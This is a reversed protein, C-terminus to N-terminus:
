VVDDITGNLNMARKAVRFIRRQFHKIAICAGRSNVVARIFNVPLHYRLAYEFSEGPLIPELGPRSLVPVAPRGGAKRQIGSLRDSLNLRPKLSRAAQPPRSARPGLSSTSRNVFCTFPLSLSSLCCRRLLRHLTPDQRGPYSGARVAAM